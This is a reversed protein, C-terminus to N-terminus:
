INFLAMETKNEEAVVKVSKESKILLNVANRIACQRTEQMVLLMIFGDIEPNPKGKIQQKRQRAHLM